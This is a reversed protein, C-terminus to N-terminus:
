DIGSPTRKLCTYHGTAAYVGDARNGVNQSEYVLTGLYRGGLKPPAHRFNHEIDYSYKSTLARLVVDAEWNGGKASAMHWRGDSKSGKRWRASGKNVADDLSTAASDLDARDFSPGGVLMNLAHRGCSVDEQREWYPPEPAM